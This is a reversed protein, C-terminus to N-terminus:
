CLDAVKWLGIYFTSPSTNLEEVPSYLLSSYLTHLAQAALFTLTFGQLARGM